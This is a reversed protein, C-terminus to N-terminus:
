RGADVRVQGGQDLRVSAQRGGRRITVTAPGAVGTPDFSLSGSAAQVGDATVITVADGEAWPVPDADPVTYGGADVRVTSTRNTLVAQDRTQALATAFREGQRALSPRPDPLAMVTLAGALGIIVVM